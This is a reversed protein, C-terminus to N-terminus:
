LSNSEGCSRKTVEFLISPVSLGPLPKTRGTQPPQREMEAQRGSKHAEVLASFMAAIAAGMEAKYEDAVGDVDVYNLTEGLHDVIEIHRKRRGSELSERAM